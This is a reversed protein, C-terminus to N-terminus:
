REVINIDVRNLPEENTKDGLARVDIRTSRVGNEIFYSRVSLARSLSLRRAKSASLDDGGAYAMLQIRLNDSEKIQDAIAGLDRDVSGPLKSEGSDFIIQLARGPAASAGAMSSAAATETTSVESSSSMESSADDGSVNTTEATESEVPEPAAPPPPADSETPSLAVAESGTAAEIEPEPQTTLVDAIAPEELEAPEPAPPPVTDAVSLSASTTATETTTPTTPAVTIPDSVVVPPGVYTSRPPTPGPMLLKAAGGAYGPITAPGYGGDDLVSLDVSVPGSQSYAPASLGYGLVFLIAASVTWTLRSFSTRQHKSM